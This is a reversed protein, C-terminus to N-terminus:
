RTRNRDNEVEKCNHTLINWSSKILEEYPTVFLGNDIEEM